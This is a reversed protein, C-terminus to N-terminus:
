ARSKLVALGRELDARLDDVAELGIHFRLLQGKGHWPAASRSKNPQAEVVLSEYGGWSYGIGFLELARMMARSALKSCPKLEVTFLGSAGTFDRRWLAHGPDAPLAPYLVREVEPRSLLWSALELASAQHRSLRVALTRLGRLGLFIDDPGACLGFHLATDRLKPWANRNATVVGLMADAHGVIYKTAAEISVDAGHLIPKFFLPTAWTNDILVMAGRAHAAKAIAPVDQVEFTLSGPSELFVVATNRRLRAKIAAGIGPDFYEVEVGFGKLMSDCFTRTPWYVCDAVLLHDGAKLFSLLSGSVAALGSPFVRARYGGELEAIANEFAHSTPTGTRGYLMNQAGKRRAAHAEELEDMGKFLVTSVRYVPPNVAGQHAALDRGLTVLKTDDHRHAKRAM